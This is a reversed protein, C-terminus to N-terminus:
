VREVVMPASFDLNEPKVHLATLSNNAISLEGSLSGRTHADGIMSTALFNAVYAAFAAKAEAKRGALVLVRALNFQASNLAVANVSRLVSGLLVERPPLPQPNLAVENVGFEVEQGIHFIDCGTACATHGLRDALNKLAGQLLGLDNAVKSSVTLRVAGGRRTISAKPM